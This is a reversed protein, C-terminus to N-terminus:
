SLSKWPVDAPRNVPVARGFPSVRFEWQGQRGPRADPRDLYDRPIVYRRVGLDALLGLVRSTPAQETEPDFTHPDLLVVTPAIGRWMLPILAEVWAGNTNATVLVLSSRQGIADKNRLLLERVSFSGPHATALTRLIEWRQGEGERPTLWVPTQSSAAFGVAQGSRIGEDALSAALIISHETTSDWDQGAQAKQDLDLFIWWDGAPTGDLLRM